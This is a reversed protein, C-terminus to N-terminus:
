PAVARAETGGVGGAEPADLLRVLRRAADARAAIHARKTAAKSAQEPVAVPRPVEPLAKGCAAATVADRAVRLAEDRDAPSTRGLWILEELIPGLM